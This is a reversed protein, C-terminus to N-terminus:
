SVPKDFMHPWFEQHWPTKGGGLWEAEALAEGLAGIRAALEQAHGNALVMRGAVWELIMHLLTIRTAKTTDYTDPGISMYTTYSGDQSKFLQDSLHAFQWGQLLQTYHAYPHVAQSFESMFESWSEGWLGEGYNAWVEADLRKRIGGATIKEDLWARVLEDRLGPRQLGADVVSLAEMCQRVLSVAIAHLGRKNVQISTDVCQVFHLGAAECATKLDLDSQQISRVTGSLERVVPEMLQDGITFWEPRNTGEPKSNM